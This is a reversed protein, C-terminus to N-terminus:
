RIAQGAVDGTAFLAVAMVAVRAARALSTAGMVELVRPLRDIALAVYCALFLVLLLRFRAPVRMSVFPPVHSKLFTWPAWTAFHGLMLLFLVGAVALMWKKDRLSL